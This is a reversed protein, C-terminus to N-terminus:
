FYGIRGWWTRSLADKRCYLVFKEDYIFQSLKFNGFGSPVCNDERKM